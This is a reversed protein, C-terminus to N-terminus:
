GWDFILSEHETAKGIETRMRLHSGLLLIVSDLLGIMPSSINCFKLCRSPLIDYISTTHCVRLCSAPQNSPKMAVVMFLIHFHYSWAMIALLRELAMRCPVTLHLLFLLSFLFPSVVDSLPNSFFWECVRLNACLPWSDIPIYGYGVCAKFNASMLQPNLQLPISEALDIQGLVRQTHIFGEEAKLGPTWGRLSGIVM